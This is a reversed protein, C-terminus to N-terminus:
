SLDLLEVESERWKRRATGKVVTGGRQPTDVDAYDWGGAVSKRLVIQRKKKERAKWAAPPSTRMPPLPSLSVHNRPSRRPAPSSNKTPPPSVPATISATVGKFMESAPQPEPSSMISLDVVEVDPTAVRSAVKTELSQSFTLDLTGLEPSDSKAKRLRPSTRRGRPETGADNQNKMLDCISSTTSTSSISTNSTISTLPARAIGTAATRRANASSSPRHPSMSRTPSSLTLDLEDVEDIALQFASAAPISAIDTLRGNDRCRTPTTSARWTDLTTQRTTGPSSAVSTNRPGRRTPAVEPRTRAKKARLQSPSPAVPSSVLDLVEITEPLSPTCSRQLTFGTGTPLTQARQMPARRRRKTVSAPLEELVLSLSKERALRPAPALNQSRPPSSSLLNVIDTQREPAPLISPTPLESVLDLTKALARSMKLGPKTVKAYREIPAQPIDGTTKTRKAGTKAKPAAVGPEQDTAARRPKQKIQREAEWDQVKLPAGAKVFSEMVWIRAPKQPDFKTPGRKKPGDDELDLAVEDDLDVDESQLLPVDPQDDPEEQSLDIRVLEIPSFSVRLETSNDTVPHQRKGHLGKVLHAEDEQIAQLNNTPLRDLQEARVRLQRVLLSPALSRIFHKAGELKVWDFADHTFDRLGALDLEQDWNISRRLKDLGTQTSIVPHTYYGLIDLRPFDTPIKLSTHKRRFLKGENTKLEHQLRERWESMAKKDSTPIKCLDHGFGAKAAECATKPGCGPIGEPVYDGGSMLAVLIMGERDLASPGNKTEVADYVNVHTPTKGTKEPSWNRITIGSGFMLTDVDESLVADM